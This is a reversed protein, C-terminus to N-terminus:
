QVLDSEGDVVELVFGCGAPQGAERDVMLNAGGFEEDQQGGLHAAVAQGGFGGAEGEVVGEVEGREGLYPQFDQFGVGGRDAGVLVCAKM